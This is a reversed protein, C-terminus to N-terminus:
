EEDEKIMKGKFVYKSNMRYFVLYLITDVICKIATKSLIQTLEYIITVIGASLILQCCIFVFYKLIATKGLNKAAFARKSLNFNITSSTVRAIITATFISIRPDVNRLIIEAFLIFLILDVIMAITSAGTYLVFKKIEDKLDM